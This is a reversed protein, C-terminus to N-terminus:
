SQGMAFRLILTGATPAYKFVYHWNERNKALGRHNQSWMFLGALLAGLVLYSAVFIFLTLGSVGSKTGERKSRRQSIKNRRKADHGALTSDKENAEVAYILPRKMDDQRNLSEDHRVPHAAQQAPKLEYGVAAYNYPLYTGTDKRSSYAM